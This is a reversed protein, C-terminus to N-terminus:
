VVLPQDALVGRQAAQFITRAESILGVKTIILASAAGTVAASVNRVSSGMDIRRGLQVPWYALTFLGAFLAKVAVLRDKQPHQPRQAAARKELIVRNPQISSAADNQIAQRTEDSAANDRSLCVNLFGEQHALHM